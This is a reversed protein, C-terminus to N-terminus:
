CILGKKPKEGQSPGRAVLIACTEIFCLLYTHKHGNPRGRLAWPAGWFGGLLAWPKASQRFYQTKRDGGHTGPEGSLGKKTKKGQSTQDLAVAPEAMKTSMM